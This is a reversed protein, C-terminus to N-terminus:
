QKCRSSSSLCTCATKGFAWADMAPSCVYDSKFSAQLGRDGSRLAEVSEPPSCSSLRSIRMGAGIEQSRLVDALKWSDNYKCCTDLNVKGHVIGLSHLHDIAKAVMRLVSFVKLAYRQRVKSDIQCEENQLMGKMVGRLTLNPQEVSVFFM